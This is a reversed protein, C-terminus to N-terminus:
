TVVPLDVADGLYNSAFFGLSMAATYFRGREVLTSARMEKGSTSYIAISDKGRRDPDAAVELKAGHKGALLAYTHIDRTEFHFKLQFRDSLVQQLMLRSSDKTTGPPEIAQVAFVEDKSLQQPGFIEYKKLQYAEEILELRSSQCVVRDHLYKCSKHLPGTTASERPVPRISVVDFRPKTAETSAQALCVAPCAIFFALYGFSLARTVNM